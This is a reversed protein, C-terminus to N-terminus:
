LEQALHGSRARQRNAGRHDAPLEGRAIAQELPEERLGTGRHSAERARHEAAGRCGHEGARDRVHELSVLLELARPVQAGRRDGLVVQQEKQALRELEVDLDLRVLAEDDVPTEVGRPKPVCGTPRRRAPVVHNDLEGSGGLLVRCNPLAKSSPLRTMTVPPVPENPCTRTRRSSSPSSPTGSSTTTKERLSASWCVIRRANWCRRTAVSSM